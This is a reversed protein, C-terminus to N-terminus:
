YNNDHTPQSLIIKGVLVRKQKNVQKNKQWFDGLLMIGFYNIILWDKGKGNAGHSANQMPPPPM